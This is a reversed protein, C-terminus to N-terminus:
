IWVAILERLDVVDDESAGSQAADEAGLKEEFHAIRQMIGFYLMSKIRYIESKCLLRLHHLTALSFSISLPMVRNWSM